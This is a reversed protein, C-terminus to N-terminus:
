KGGRPSKKAIQGGAALLPYIRSTTGLGTDMLMSLLNQSLQTAAQAQLGQNNRELDSLAQIQGGGSPTADTIRRQAQPLQANLAQFQPALFQRFLQGGGTAADQLLALAYDEFPEFKGYTVDGLRGLLKSFDIGSSLEDGTLPSRGKLGSLGATPAFSYSSPDFLAM